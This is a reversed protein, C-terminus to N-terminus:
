RHSRCILTKLYRTEAIAPHLPHDPGQGTIELIQLERGAQQAAARVIDILGSEELHLSCSASVLIADDTLLNMAARNLKQYAHEGSKQDRRRKIFAPPDLIVVDFREGEAALQQMQEFADGCRFALQEGVGNLAANRAALALAPESSDIGLVSSAGAVAAQVGWAGAYCFVDLVRRGRALEAVRRRGTRHDFFWGTKQGGHPSVWFRVGNEGLEILEPVEGHVVRAYMPLQEMDRISADNRLLIGAPALLEVLVAVLAELLVEMGATAIQVVVYEGYRDVILGPLGDSDGYALRYFPESFLQERLTLAVRLRGRLFAEGVATNGERVLMRACILSHPNVSVVGLPRGSAAFLLAQAGPTFARLPTAATDIENSYVWNHGQRIRRDENRRLQLRPLEMAGSM